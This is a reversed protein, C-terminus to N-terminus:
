QKPLSHAVCKDENGSREENDALACIYTTEETKFSFLIAIAIYRVLVGLRLGLLEHM